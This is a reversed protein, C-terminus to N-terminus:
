GARISIKESLLRSLYLFPLTASLLAPCIFSAASNYQMLKVVALNM